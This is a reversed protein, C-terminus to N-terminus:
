LSSKMALLRAELDAVRQHVDYKNGAFISVKEKYSNDSYRYLTARLDDYDDDAADECFFNLEAFGNGEIVTKISGKQEDNDGNRFFHSFRILMEEELQFKAEVDSTDSDNGVTAIHRNDDLNVMKIKNAFVAKSRTIKVRYYGAPLRVIEHAQGSPM